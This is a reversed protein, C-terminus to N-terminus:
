GRDGCSLPATAVLPEPKIEPLDPPKPEDDGGLADMINEGLGDDSQEREWAEHERKWERAVERRDQEKRALNALQSLMTACKQLEAAIRRADDRTIRMHERRFDRAFAGRWDELAQESASAFVGAQDELEEAARKFEAKLKSAAGWAFPVDEEIPGLNHDVM